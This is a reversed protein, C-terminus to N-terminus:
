FNNRVAISLRLYSDLAALSGGRCSRVRKKYASLIHAFLDILEEENEAYLSSVLIKEMILSIIMRMTEKVRKKYSEIM